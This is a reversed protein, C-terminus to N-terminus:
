CKVKSQKGPQPVKSRKSGHHRVDRAYMMLGKVNGEFPEEKPKEADDIQSLQSEEDQVTDKDEPSNNAQEALLKAKNYMYVDRLTSPILLSVPAADDSDLFPSRWDDFFVESKLMAELISRARPLLDQLVNYIDDNFTLNSLPSRLGSHATIFRQFRQVMAASFHDPSIFTRLSCDLHRFLVPQRGDLEFVPLLERACGIFDNHMASRTAQACYPKWFDVEWTDCNVMIDDISWKGDWSNDQNHTWCIKVLINSLIVRGVDTSKRVLLSANKCYIYDDEAPHNGPLCLFNKLPIIRHSKAIDCLRVTLSTSQFDLEKFEQIFTRAASNTIKQLGRLFNLIRRELVKDADQGGLFGEYWPKRTISSTTNSSSAHSPSSTTSMLDVLSCSSIIQWIKNSTLFGEDTLLHYLRGNHKYVVSFHNNRFFISLQGDAITEQLTTLGHHTLQSCTDKLFKRILEYEQDLNAAMIDQNAEKMSDYKALDETIEDHGRGRIVDVITADDKPNLLWGHYLPVDLIRFLAHSSSDKFGDISTFTPNVDLATASQKIVNLVPHIEDEKLKEFLLDFVQNALFYESVRSQKGLNIRGMLILCNCISLLSCPGNADQLVIRRNHGMFRVLKTLHSPTDSPEPDVSSPCADNVASCAIVKTTDVTENANGYNKKADAKQGADKKRNKDSKKANAKQRGKKMNRDSKEANKKRNSNELDLDGNNERTSKINNGRKEPLSLGPAQNKSSPAVNKESLPLGPAQDESSEAVKKEPLLLVPTQNECSPAIAYQPQPHAMQPPTVASPSPTIVDPQRPKTLLKQYLFLEPRWRQDPNMAWGMLEEPPRAMRWCGEGAVTAGPSRSGGGRDGGERWRRRGIIGGGSQRAAEQGAVARKRGWPAVAAEGDVMPVGGGRRGGGGIRFALYLRRRREPSSSLQQRFTDEHNLMAIKMVKMDCQRVLNDM